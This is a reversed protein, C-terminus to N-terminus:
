GFFEICDVDEIAKRLRKIIEKKDEIETEFCVQVLGVVSLV